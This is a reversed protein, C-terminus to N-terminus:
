HYKRAFLKYTKTVGFYKTLSDNYCKNILEKQLASNEFVYFRGKYRFLEKLDFM